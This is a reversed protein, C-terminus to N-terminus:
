DDEPLQLARCREAAYWAVVDFEVDRIYATPIFTDIDLMNDMVIHETDSTQYVMFRSGGQVHDDGPYPQGHQLFAE